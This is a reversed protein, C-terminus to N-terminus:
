FSFFKFRCRLGYFKLSILKKSVFYRIIVFKSAGVLGVFSLPVSIYASGSFSFRVCFCYSFLSNMWYFKEGVGVGVM